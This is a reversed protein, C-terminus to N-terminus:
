NMTAAPGGLRLKYDRSRIDFISCPVGFNSIRYGIGKHRNDRAEHREGKRREKRRM